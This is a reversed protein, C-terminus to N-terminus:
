RPDSLRQDPRFQVYQCANKLGNCIKDINEDFGQNRVFDLASILRSVTRDPSSTPILTQGFLYSFVKLKMAEGADALTLDMYLTFEEKWLKALNTSDLCLAIPLRLGLANEMRAAGSSEAREIMSLRHRPDHRSIETSKSKM